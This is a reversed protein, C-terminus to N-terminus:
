GIYSDHVMAYAADRNLTARRVDCYVLKIRKEIKADELYVFPGIECKDAIVSDKNILVPPIFKVNRGIKAGKAILVGEQPIQYPLFGKDKVKHPNEDTLICLSLFLVPVLDFDEHFYCKSRNFVLDCPCKIAGPLTKADFDPEGELIFQNGPANVSHRNEPCVADVIPVGIWVRHGKGGRVLTASFSTAGAFRNPTKM